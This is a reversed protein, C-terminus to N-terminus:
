TTEENLIIQNLEEETEYIVDKYQIGGEYFTIIGDGYTYSTSPLLFSSKDDVSTNNLKNNIM